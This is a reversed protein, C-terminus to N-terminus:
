LLPRVTVSASPMRAHHPRDERITPSSASCAADSADRLTGCITYEQYNDVGFQSILAAEAAAFQVFADTRRGIKAVQYSCLAEHYAEILEDDTM